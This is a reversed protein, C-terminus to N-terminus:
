THLIHLVDHLRQSGLSRKKKIGSGEVHGVRADCGKKKQSGRSFASERPEQRQLSKAAPVRLGLNPNLTQPIHTGPLHLYWQWSRAWIKPSPSEPDRTVGRM